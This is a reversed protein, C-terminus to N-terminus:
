NRKSLKLFIAKRPTLLVQAPHIELEETKMANDALEVNFKTLVKVIATKTMIKGIAKGICSRPGEGFPSYYTGDVKGNGHPSDRFREPDFQMPNDYIDPDRQM